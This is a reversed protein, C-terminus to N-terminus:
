NQSVLAKQKPLLVKTDMSMVLWVPGTFSHLAELSSRLVNLQAVAAPPLESSDQDMIQQLEQDMIQQLEHALHLTLQTEELQEEPHDLGRGVVSTLRAAVPEWLFASDAPHAAAVLPSPSRSRSSDAARSRAKYEVLAREQVGALWPSPADRAPTGGGAMSSRAPSTRPSGPSGAKKPVVAAASSRRLQASHQERSQTKAGCESKPDVLGM